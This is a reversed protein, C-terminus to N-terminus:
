CLISLLSVTEPFTNQNMSNVKIQYNTIMCEDMVYERTIYQHWQCIPLIWRLNSLLIRISGGDTVQM